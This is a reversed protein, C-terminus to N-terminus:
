NQIVSNGSGSVSVNKVKQGSNQMRIIDKIDQIEKQLCSNISREKQLEYFLEEKSYDDISKSKRM